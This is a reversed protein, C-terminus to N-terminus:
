YKWQLMNSCLTPCICSELMGPRRSMKWQHPLFFILSFAGSNEIRFSMIFGKRWLVFRFAPLELNKVRCFAKFGGKLCTMFLFEYNQVCLQHDHDIWMGLLIKKRQSLGKLSVVSWDQMQNQHLLVLLDKNIVPVWGNSGLGSLMGFYCLIFIVLDTHFDRGQIIGVGGHSPVWVSVLTHPCTPVLIFTPLPESKSICFEWLEVLKGHLKRYEKHSMKVVKDVSLVFNSDM